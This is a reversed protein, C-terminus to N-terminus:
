SNRKKSKWDEIKEYFFEKIYFIINDMKWWLKKYFSTKRLDDEIRKYYEEESFTLLAIYMDDRESSCTTCWDIIDKEEWMDQRIVVDPDKEDEELFRNNQFEERYNELLEILKSLKM